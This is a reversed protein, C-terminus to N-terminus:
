KASPSTFTPRQLVAKAEETRLTAPAGAALNKLVEKAQRTGIHEDDPEQSRPRCLVRCRAILATLAAASM